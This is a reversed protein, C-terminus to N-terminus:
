KVCTCTWACAPKWVHVESKSVGPGFRIAAVGRVEDGSCRIIQREWSYPIGNPFDELTRCPSTRPQQSLHLAIGRSPWTQGSGSCGLLPRAKM